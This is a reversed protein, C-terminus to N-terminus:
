NLLSGTKSVVAMDVYNSGSKGKAVNIVYGGLDVTGLQSLAHTVTASTLNRGAKRLAEVMIRAAIYGEMTAHSPPEERYKKMVTVHERAIGAIAFYPSPTLTAIVVGQANHLGTFDALTIHNVDSLAMVMIGANDRRLEGIFLAAPLTSTAVLVAQATSNGVLKVAQAIDDAQASITAGAVIPIRTEKLVSEIAAREAIGSEDRTSVIAVRQIGLGALTAVLKRAEDASSARVHYVEGVNKGRLAESGSFPALMAVNGLKFWASEVVQRAAAGGCFGFLAVAKDNEILSKAATVAEAASAPEERSLLTIKEGNVGGKGNVADFYTQAGAVFDRCAEVQEGHSNLIQGLVIGDQARALHAALLLLSLLVFRYM